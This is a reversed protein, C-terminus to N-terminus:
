GWNLPFLHILYLTILNSKMTFNHIVYRVLQETWSDINWSPIAYTNRGKSGVWCISCSWRHFVWKDLNSDDVYCWFIIIIKKELTLKLCKQCDSSPWPSLKLCKGQLCAELLFKYYFVNFFFFFILMNPGSHGIEKM